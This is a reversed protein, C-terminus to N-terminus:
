TWTKMKLQYGPRQDRRLRKAIQIKTHNNQWINRKESRQIFVKSQLIKKKEPILNGM